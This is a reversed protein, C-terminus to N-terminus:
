IYKHINEGVRRITLSTKRVMVRDVQSDLMETTLTSGVKPKKELRYKLFFRSAAYAHKCVRNKGKPDRVTPTSGDSRPKRDLYDGRAAWHDPGQWKWFECSCGIKLDVKEIDVTGAKRPMAKLHVVHKRGSGMPDAVVFTWRNNNPDARKLSVNCRNARSRVARNLGSAIDAWTLAVKPTSAVLVEWPVLVSFDPLQSSNAYDRNLNNRKYDDADGPHHHREWPEVDANSPGQPSELRPHYDRNVQDPNTQDKLLDNTEDVRYISEDDTSPTERTPNVHLHHLPGFRDADNMAVIVVLSDKDEVGSVDVMETPILHISRTAPPMAAVFEELTGFVDQRQFEEYSAQSLYFERKDDAM